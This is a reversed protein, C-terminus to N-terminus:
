VKLKVKCQHKRQIEEIEDMAEELLQKSEFEITVKPKKQKPEPDDFFSKPDFGLMVLLQVDWENALKDYDWSGTHLNLSINLEEVETETLQVCPVWCLVETEGINHLIKLRQHGGIVTNDKNIVIKDILGFKKLNNKLHKEQDKTLVRANREYPILDEIKRTEINWKMKEVM